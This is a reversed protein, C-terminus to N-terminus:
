SLAAAHGHKLLQPPFSLLLGNVGSISGEHVSRKLRYGGHRGEKGKEKVTEEDTPVGGAFGVMRNSYDSVYNWKSEGKRVFSSKESGIELEAVRGGGIVRQSYRQVLKAKPVKMERPSPRHNQKPSPKPPLTSMPM